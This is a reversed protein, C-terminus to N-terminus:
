DHAYRNIWKRDISDKWRWVWDGAVSLGNRTAISRKDGLTILNLANISHRYPRLPLNTLNALLNRALAAGQRVAFVGSKPVKIGSVNACDGAAFIHPHNTSQLCGNVHISGDTSRALDTKQLMPSPAYGTALVTLQTDILEGGALRLRTPEIHEVVRQELVTVSNKKCARMALARVRAPYGDMLRTASVISVRRNSSQRWRYALALAVELAAAGGGVIRVVLGASRVSEFENIAALLPDIPKVTVVYAGPTTPIPRSVCGVDFSAIDFRHREGIGSELVGNAAHLALVSTEFFRVRARQCLAWLNVKADAPEYHGAIVGPLMASYWVSPAPNFLAVDVEAPPNLALQRLVEVHAHGGGILLM